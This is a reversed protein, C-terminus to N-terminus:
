ETPKTPKDCNNSYWVRMAGERTSAKAWKDNPYKKIYAEYITPWSQGKALRPNIFALRQKKIRAKGTSKTRKDIAAIKKHMKEFKADISESSTPPETKDPEPSSNSPRNWHATSSTNSSTKSEFVAQSAAVISETLQVMPVALRAWSSNDRGVLIRGIAARAIAQRGVDMSASNVIGFRPNLMARQDAETENNSPRNSLERTIAKAIQIDKTECLWIQPSFVRTGDLDNGPGWRGKHWGIEAALRVFRHERTNCSTQQKFEKASVVSKLRNVRPGRIRQSQKRLAEARAQSRMKRQLILTRRRNKLQVALEHRIAILAEADGMGAFREYPFKDTFGPWWRVFAFYVDTGSDASDADM